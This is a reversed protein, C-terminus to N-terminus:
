KTQILIDNANINETSIHIYLNQQNNDYYYSGTRNIVEEKSKVKHYGNGNSEEYVGIVNNPEYIWYISKGILTWGQRITATTFHYNYEVEISGIPNTLMDMSIENFTDHSILTKDNFVGIETVGELDKAEFSTKLQILNNEIDAESTCTTRILENGLSIDSKSPATEGNGLAIYEIPNIDNNICRNLFYVLGYFTIINHGEYIVTGDQIFKYTGYIGLNVIIIM